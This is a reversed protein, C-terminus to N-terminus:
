PIKVSFLAARRNGDDVSPLCNRYRLAKTVVKNLTVETVERSPFSM